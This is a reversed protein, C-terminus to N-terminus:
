FSNKQHCEGQQQPQASLASGAFSDRSLAWTVVLISDVVAIQGLRAGASASRRQHHDLSIRFNGSFCTWYDGEGQREGCGGSGAETCSAPSDDGAWGRCRWPPGQVYTITVAGRERKEESELRRGAAGLSQQRKEGLQSEAMSGCSIWSMSLRAQAQAQPKRRCAVRTSAPGFVGAGLDSSRRLRTGDEITSQCRYSVLSAQLFLKKKKQPRMGDWYEALLAWPSRQMRLAGDEFKCSWRTCRHGLALTM